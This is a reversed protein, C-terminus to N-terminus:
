NTARLPTARFLVGGIGHHTVLDTSLYGGPPPEGKAWARFQRWLDTVLVWGQPEHSLPVTYPAYTFKYEVFPALRGIPLQVGFLIQGAYGAFQYEYTRRNEAKLGIETHPLTIGGGLGIYPRVPLFWSPLRVLGNLTVINHGHSFELHRFVDEIKAKGPAPQGNITGTFTATDGARAIAKAHTFDIMTGLPSAPAWHQSRLGYYIPSKFPRGIWNFDQVTLDTRGPNTIRVTSPLTLSVGSYGGILHEWRGVRSSGESQLKSAVTQREDSPVEASPMLVPAPAALIWALLALM